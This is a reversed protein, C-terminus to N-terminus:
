FVGSLYLLQDMINKAEKSMDDDYEIQAILDEVADSFISVTRGDSTKTSNGITLLGFFVILTLM